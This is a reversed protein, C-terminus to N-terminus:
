SATRPRAWSTSRGPARTVADPDGDFRNLGSGPTGDHTLIKIDENTRRDETPAIEDVDVRFVPGWSSFVRTPGAQIKTDEPRIDPVLAPLFAPVALLVALGLAVGRQVRRTGPTVWAALAALAAASIAVVSPPGIWTILFVVVLAAIGAGLLDAFYLRGIDDGGRGLLVAIMVGIAIFTAFLAFCIVLLTALSRFSAGTGYSWLALTNIPVQSVVLYGVVISVAGWLSALSLVKRTGAARISKSLVVVTAGSGIGLLALGIVLYTYYYWLKYSIIRTYAVELLLGALSVVFIAVLASTRNLRQEPSSPDSGHPGGGSPQATSSTTTDIAEDPSSV